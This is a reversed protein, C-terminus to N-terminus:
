PPVAHLNQLNWLRPGGGEGGTCGVFSVRQVETSDTDFLTSTKPKGVTPYTVRPTEQRGGSVPHKFFLSIIQRRPYICFFSNQVTRTCSTDAGSSRSRQFTTPLFFSM